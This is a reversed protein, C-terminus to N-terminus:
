KCNVALEVLKHIQDILAKRSQTDVDPIRELAKTVGNIVDVTVQGRAQINVREASMQEIQARIRDVVSRTDAEIIEVAIEGQTRMKYIEVLSKAIEGFDGIVQGSIDIVRDIQKETPTIGKQGQQGPRALPGRNPLDFENDKTM